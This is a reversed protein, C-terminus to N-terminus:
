KWGKDTPYVNQGTAMENPAAFWDKVTDRWKFFHPTTMHTKFANEDRYVEFLHLRNPDTGDQVVTFQLVGPEKEESSRANDVMAALFPKRFEPKMQVKVIVVYM